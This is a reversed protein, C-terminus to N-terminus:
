AANTKVFLWKKAARTLKHLIFWGSFTASFNVIITLFIFRLDLRRQVVFSLIELSAAYFLVALLIFVLVALKTNIPKLSKLLFGVALWLAIQAGLIAGFFVDTLIISEWLANFFILPWALRGAFIAILLVATLSLNIQWVPSWSSFFYLDLWFVLLSSIFYYLLM